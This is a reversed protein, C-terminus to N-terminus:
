ELPEPLSTKQEVTLKCWFSQLKKPQPHQLKKELTRYDLNPLLAFSALFRMNPTIQLEM